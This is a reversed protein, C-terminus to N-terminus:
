TVYDEEVPVAAAVGAAATDTTLPPVTVAGPYSGIIMVLVTDLSAPSAAAAAAAAVAWAVLEPVVEVLVTEEDPAVTV